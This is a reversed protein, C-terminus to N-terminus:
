FSNITTLIQTDVTSSTYSATTNTALATTGSTLSATASSLSLSSSSSTISSYTYTDGVSYSGTLTGDQPAKIIFLRNSSSTQGAAFYKGNYGGALYLFKGWSRNFTISGTLNSLKSFLNTSSSTYLAGDSGKVIRQAPQSKDSWYRGWQTSGTSLSFAATFPRLSGSVYVYGTGYLYSSDGTFGYFARGNTADVFHRQFSLSGTTSYKAIGIVQQTRDISGRFAVYCGSSDAWIASSQYIDDGNTGVRRLTRQWSVAGASTLRVTYVYYNNSAGVAYNTKYSFSFYVNNSSDVILGQKATSSSVNYDVNTQPGFRRQWSVAGASTYQIVHIISSSYADSGTARTAVVVGNSTTTSIGLVDLARTGGSLGYTIERAWLLGGSNSFKLIRLRENTSSNSIRVPVASYITGDSAVQSAGFSARFTDNSDYAELIFNTPIEAVSITPTEAVIEGTSSGTRIQLRFSDTTSNSDQSLTKSFVTVGSAAVTITSTLLGDTFSAANITGSIQSITYYLITGTPVNSTTVTFTVTDSETVTSDNVSIAYTAIPAETGSSFMGMTGLLPM